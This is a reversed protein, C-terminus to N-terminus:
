AMFVQTPPPPCISGEASTPPLRLAERKRQKVGPLFIFGHGNPLYSQSYWLWWTGQPLFFLRSGLPVRVEFGRDKLWCCTTIGVSSGSSSGSIGEDICGGGGELYRCNRWLFSLTQMQFAMWFDFYCSGCITRNYCYFSDRSRMCWTEDKYMFIFSDWYCDMSIWRFKIRRPNWM